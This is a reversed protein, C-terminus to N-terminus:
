VRVGINSTATCYKMRAVIRSSLDQEPIMEGDVTIMTVTDDTFRLSYNGNCRCIQTRTGACAERFTGHRFLELARQSCSPQFLCERHVIRRGVLQYLRIASSATICLLHDSLKMLCHM